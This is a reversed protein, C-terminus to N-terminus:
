LSCCSHMAVPWMVLRPNVLTRPGIQLLGKPDAAMVQPSPLPSGSRHSIETGFRQGDTKEPFPPLMWLLAAPQPEAPM